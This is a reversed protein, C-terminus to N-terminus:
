ASAGRSSAPTRRYRLLAQAWVLAGYAFCISGIAYRASFQHPPPTVCPNTSGYRHAIVFFAVGLLFGEIGGPLYLKGSTRGLAGRNRALIWTAWNIFELLAIAGFLQILFWFAEEWGGNCPVGQYMEPPNHVAVIFGIALIFVIILRAIVGSWDYYPMETSELVATRSHAM